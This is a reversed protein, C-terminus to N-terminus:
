TSVKPKLSRALTATDIGTGSVDFFVINTEVAAPTLTVGDIANLMDGLRKANAHDDALRDIHNEFAYLGATALFGAQRM